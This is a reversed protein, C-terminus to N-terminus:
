LRPVRKARQRMLSEHWPVRGGTSLEAMWLTHDDYDIWRVEGVAGCDGCNVKSIDLRSESGRSVTSVGSLKESGCRGCVGIEIITSERLRM